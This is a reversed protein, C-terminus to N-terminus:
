FWSRSGSSRSPGFDSRGTSFGWPNHFDQVAREREVPKRIPKKPVVPTPKETVDPAAATVTTPAPPKSVVRPVPTPQVPAVPAANTQQVVTAPPSQHTALSPEVLWRFAVALVVYVGLCVGVLALTSPGKRQLSVVGL